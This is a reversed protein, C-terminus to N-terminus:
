ALSNDIRKLVSMVFSTEVETGPPVDKKEGSDVPTTVGQAKQQAAPKDPQRQEIREPVSLHEVLEFSVSWQRHTDQEDARIAGQFKAQRIRLAEATKNSIRYIHRSGEELAEAMSFLNTLLKARDFPIVGKVTLIKGKTGTEVQDTSSTQGSMDQGALQQRVGIKLQKLQLQTGDLTLM